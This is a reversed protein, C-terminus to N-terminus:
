EFCTFPLTQSFPVVAKHGVLTAKLDISRCGTNALWFGVYTIGDAGFSQLTTTADLIIRDPRRPSSSFPMSGSEVAVLRVRMNRPVPSDRPIHMKIVIFTSTSAFKSSPVNGLEPANKALMNGSFSGNESNFLFAQFEDFGPLPEPEANAAFRHLAVLIV